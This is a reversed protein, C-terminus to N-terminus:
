RVKRGSRKGRSQSFAGVTLWDSGSTDVNCGANALKTALEQRSTPADSLHVVHRGGIDSFPRVAGVQVMVTSNENRGFAMGAEFLVNARAQGTLKKEHTGDSSKWFEKKLMAEDDPTLLVVVAVAERFAADLVEGVYPSGKGTKRLAQTWEMPQLGLARLLSFMEGKLSENRGHVVWVSNGRRKERQATRKSRRGSTRTVPKVAAPVVVTAPASTRAADRIERLDDDKAYKRINIGLESALAIAALHTPLHMTRSKENVLQYARRQSVGAQKEIRKILDGPIKAV